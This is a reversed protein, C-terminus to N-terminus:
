AGDGSSLGLAWDVARDFLRIAESTSLHFTDHHWFLFVTRAQAPQGNSLEAGVEAVLLASDDGFLHKALVQVGPGRFPWAVSFTDARRVVRLRQDVPLGATIPHDADVIRIYTQEPRTGGWRALQTAELLRLPEWFILPTATQAYRAAADLDQINSSILLLEHRAAVEAPDPASGDDTGIVNVTAGRAALHTVVAVDGETLEAPNHVLLAIRTGPPLPPPGAAAATAALQPLQQRLTEPDSLQHLRQAKADLADSFGQLAAEWQAVAVAPEQDPVWRAAEAVIAPRLAAALAARRGRVSETALAGALHREVQATFYAQYQPNALLSALIPILASRAERGPRGYVDPPVGADGVFLRWRTDAGSRSRAAYWDQSDWATDGNWLHLIVFATFSEIDLQQVAQEYQAAASLDASALWDAVLRWRHANDPAQEGAAASTYWASTNFHTALFTDDLYETLNYLGWYAGNLYLVVWRGRAAVQGMAGHLERVVQDQVYVAEEVCQPAEGCQWSDQGEARLVLRTYTQGPEAGFLPYALEHLGYEERFYLEFSQKAADTRSEGGRIRLGAPVSFGLEGEPSLGHVTVPREWRRGRKQANTYIGTAEDWLHAPDTVLSVVPLGIGAGVLYTATTVTSGPVGDQLAVARLVTTETVELPATYAQGEVTPDAGDLTYYVLSGPLPAELQVTVSGAFRGSGPTVVVLPADLPARPSTTNAKGPTPTPFFVWQDSATGLRGLSVDALQPGFTVEDVVQGDLGFLGVYEGARSLRFSTHWGEPAVRDVGSAWIVLFAGPALTSAPLPWKTPAAPDDTLTYGALSVPMDTPNHLELWDAYGGQDDLATHTNAAQVETIIVGLPGAPAVSAPAESASRSPLQQRLTEPDSLQRLQQESADLSDAVQQLAAEWQAVAVAPEQEPLWRAAEAAMEPRLEAALAALRGRVSETNLTGALQQEIQATFYARYQANQLLSALVQGLRTGGTVVREFTNETNMFTTEADWVIWRWRGDPGERPRVVVWNNHPWDVNQAWINLLFYSTFNEIDLQQVVQEYQAAARLDTRALWDAFRYWRHLVDAKNVYWTSADFHTALFTADIRETLDYLGWYAGNLYLAVWRGQVAVQGMAGHLERVLQDRVYVVVGGSSWAKGASSWSDNYGARLVLRDYTQGPAAGFLPYALERPGYAGRFYLRFSKKATLRSGGGHIRLGAGVNFGREGEPSLWEVTVPREWSRGREEPNAYIGTSEDWLHAPDTVLSLVPLNTREGVLYTATTVASVPVGEDLAVARLVTTETVPGAFRGSGPTVVVPPVPAALQPLPQRLTEPDNLQRLRQADADLTDAIRQLEAEWQAVLVAPEQEPLWRAAEAAMEPRLAAALAALRERVAATDLAGAWHREVQAAFYTRYQANQLLSALVQGLRTGGTVVREFTDEEREFTSEADWVIFRWRTDPGERPRAVVWNNHPWDTNRAWLNLLYYGTFNEVDFYQVAQEYQAAARLDTRALWDAFRYWRNASGPTLEGSKSHAYWTSADFHTALFTADIRETLNYLGWYAGNLYLVVWRGQVAVQGMAAHLERVLQDRLFVAQERYCGPKDECPWLWGDDVGARLVLRGYTQGPATGFLPYELERPGYAGRFYLRFSRKPVRLRSINGHIRLGAGVSFGLAGEPSLWEVMVPREWERGRGEANVHIGKAEDWLHAPDTVLSLVPLDTREDVLYTAATVASVPVGEDLAVARLVTTETVELPATYAQGEVTPDAGDLTYYVTARGVPAQLRVTVPGAYRGSGPTVVVPPADPPARRRHRTTNAAGPTPTPFPVWQDSVTGLRGLSVDALQPGFTVEDVVQGDPGFLGVYEGARSLRFSTHWGEPTVQDLGSAWVVLFAGPALTTVPLPWKTPESPDDTLTYGVISIPTDTPNHLEIWDAYGGQDDLATHTNAALVETIRVGPPAAQAVPAGSSLVVLLLGLLLACGPPILRHM